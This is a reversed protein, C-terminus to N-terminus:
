EFKPGGSFTPRPEGGLAGSNTESHTLVRDSGFM